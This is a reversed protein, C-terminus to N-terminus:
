VGGEVDELYIWADEGPILGLKAGDDWNVHLTGQADVFKVTGETGPKLRTADAIAVLRVRRGSPGREAATSARDGDM